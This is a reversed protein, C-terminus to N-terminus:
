GIVRKAIDVAGKADKAYYDAGISEAYDATLVAGGVMVECQLRREKLLAITEAAAPLTTTMLASLGVLKVNSGAATEAILEPPVDKGLDIVDYGYSELLVKVINKGIDHIDGKVTALVIKGNNGPNQVESSPLKKKIVDFCASATEASLILQPLFIRGAEFDSGAKDLAPILHKNIVEMAPVTELLRATIAAGDKKMGGSIASELTFQESKIESKIATQNDAEKSKSYAKIYEAANEDYGNLLKYARVAGMVSDINPNIIPLDLGNQLAMILFASNIKEREPLGFSVNSVGLATKLGLKTKVLRVAELTTLAANRDTSVTM